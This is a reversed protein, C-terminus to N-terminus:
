NAMFQKTCFGPLGSFFPITLSTRKIVIKPKIGPSHFIVRFLANGKKPVKQKNLIDMELFIKFEGESKFSVEKGLNEQPYQIKKSMKLHLFRIFSFLPTYQYHQLNKM